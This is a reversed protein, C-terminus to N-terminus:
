IQRSRLAQDAAPFTSVTLRIERFAPDEVGSAAVARLMEERPIYSLAILRSCGLASATEGVAQLVIEALDEASMPVGVVEPLAFRPLGAAGDLASGKRQEALISQQESTAM